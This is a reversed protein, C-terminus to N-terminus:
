PSVCLCAECIPHSRTTGSPRFEHPKLRLSQLQEPTPETSTPYNRRDLHATVALGTETRASRISNLIKQFSDLPEGAWNKAIESFLRPEIPNWKSAGTPYHAITLTLGLSDALQSQLETKWTRRRASTAHSVEFRRLREARVLDDAAKQEFLPDNSAMYRDLRQPKLRAQAWVSCLDVQEGGAGRGSKPLVM